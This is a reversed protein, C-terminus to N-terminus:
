RASGIGTPDFGAGIRVELDDFCYSFAPNLRFRNPQLNKALSILKENKGEKRYSFDSIM